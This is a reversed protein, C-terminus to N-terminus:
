HIHHFLYYHTHHFLHFHSYHFLYFHIHHFLNHIVFNIYPLLISLSALLSISLCLCLAFSLSVSLSLSDLFFIANSLNVFVFFGAYEYSDCLLTCLLLYSSILYMLYIHPLSRPHRNAVIGQSSDYPVTRFGM